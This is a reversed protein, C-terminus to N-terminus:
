RGLRFRRRGRKKGFPRDCEKETFSYAFIPEIRIPRVATLVNCTHSIVARVLDSAVFAHLAIQGDDDNDDDVNDGDGKVNSCYWCRCRCCCNLAAPTTHLM